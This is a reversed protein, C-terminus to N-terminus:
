RIPRVKTTDKRAIYGETTTRNAHGALAQAYDLGGAQKARTLCTGRLDDPSLFV